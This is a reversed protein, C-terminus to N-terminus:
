RRSRPPSPSSTGRRAAAPAGDRRDPPRAELGPSGLGSVRRPTRQARFERARPWSFRKTGDPLAPPFGAAVAEAAQRWLRLIELRLLESAEKYGKGNRPLDDFRMPKGYVVCCPRRNKRTWGFSELGCPIVPVGGKMAITVAGAHVPGPYGFRQRTGEVFVGVIHGERVLELATRLGERDSEGRRIPFAGTWTLAEGVVPIELLESKMMYWLARNSFSGVLPPDIASLHNVALVAGGEPPLRDTGYAWSGPAMIMTTIPVVNFRMFIWGKEVDAGWLWPVGLRTFLTPDLM